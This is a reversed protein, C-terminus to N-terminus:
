STGLHAWSPALPAVINGLHAVSPGLHALIPGLSLLIPGPHGALHGLSPELQALIPWSPLWSPGFFGCSSWWLTNQIATSSAFAPACPPTDEYRPFWFFTVHSCLSKYRPFMLIPPRWDLWLHGLSPFLHALIPAVLPLIAVPHGLSAGWPWCSSAFHLLGPGLHLGQPGRHGLIPGWPWCSPGFHLLGPGLHPWWPPLIPCSALISGKHAMALLEPSPQRKYQLDETSARPM